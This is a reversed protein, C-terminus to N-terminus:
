LPRRQMTLAPAALLIANPTSRAALGHLSICQGLRDDNGPRVNPFAERDQRVVDPSSAVVAGPNDDDVGSHRRNGTSCIEEQRHTRSAIASQGVSDEVHHEFTAPDILLKYFRVRRSELFDLPKDRL